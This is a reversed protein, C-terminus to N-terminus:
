DSSSKEYIRGENWDKTMTNWVLKNYASVVSITLHIEIVFCSLFPSHRVVSGDMTIDM